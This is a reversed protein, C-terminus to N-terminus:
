GPCNLDKWSWLIQWRVFHDMGNPSFKISSNKRLSLWFGYRQLKQEREKCMRYTYYKKWKSSWWLSLVVITDVKDATKWNVPGGLSSASAQLLEAKRRVVGHCLQSRIRTEMQYTGTVVERSFAIAVWELVRAQFIGQISSGPPSYDMPNCLWVHSLLQCM